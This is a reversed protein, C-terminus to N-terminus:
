VRDYTVFSFGPHRQRSTEEWQSWDVPPFWTDGDPEADVETLELRDAMSMAQGYVEAGGAVFVDGGSSAAIALADDLSGAAVVGDHSWGPRRTLVINTRGPLPRGISEFTARGMVLAHGMTLQKFRALDEPIRWPLGGDAGIVGNRGVAAVIVIRM